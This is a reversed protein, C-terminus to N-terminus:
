SSFLCFFSFCQVFCMLGLAFIADELLVHLENYLISVLLLGLPVNLFGWIISTLFCLFVESMWSYKKVASLRVGLGFVYIVQASHSQITDMIYKEHGWELHRRAGIVMSMKQSFNHEVATDEGM